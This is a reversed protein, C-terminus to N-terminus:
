DMGRCSHWRSPTLISDVRMDHPEEPVASVIQADFAVGCKHGRVEALLRDYFGKGRGLRRGALDFAVGPVLALDLQNLSVVPCGAGPELVGFRGSVLEAHTRISCAEYSGTKPNFRPFGIIGPSKEELLPTIDPEDALPAFLLVSTASRWIPQEALVACLQESFTRRHDPLIARVLERVLARLASKDPAEM